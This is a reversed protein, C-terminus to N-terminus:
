ENSLTTDHQTTNHPHHKGEVIYKFRPTKVGTTEDVDFLEQVNRINVAEPRGGCPVFLTSKALPCLHFNNRNNTTLTLTLTTTIHLLPYRFTLGSPVVTGDPLTVDKDDLLILFGDKSLKSRDFHNVMKREDAM